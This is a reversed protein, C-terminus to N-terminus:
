KERKEKEIEAKYVRHSYVLTLVSALVLYLVCTMSSAFSNEMAFATIISLVGAVMILIGGCRNSKRWTNDNYMSWSIRVGVTSNIRTKTMVNGLIIFVIGMLVVTVKGTDVVQTEAMSVAEKYSSFLYFGQMVTFMVAMCTGVMEIVKRNSILGAVAKEDTEKEARKEYYRAILSWFLSMVMIIIPLVFNEYKSGWRDINGEVDYHMPVSDPMFLLVIATGVFAIITVIWMMKKM